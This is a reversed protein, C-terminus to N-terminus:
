TRLDKKAEATMKQIAEFTIEMREEHFIATPLDNKIAELKRIADSLVVGTQKSLVFPSLSAAKELELTGATNAEFLRKEWDDTLEYGGLEADRMSRSLNYIGHLGEIAAAYATAKREWWKESRFRRLGLWIGGLGFCGAVIATFVPSSLGLKIWETCTM